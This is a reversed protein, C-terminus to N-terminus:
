VSRRPSSTAVDRPTVRLPPARPPRRDDRPPGGEGPHGPAPSVGRPASLRVQVKVRDVRLFPPDGRTVGPLVLPGFSVRLLPDVRVNGELVVEGLQARVAELIRQRLLGEVAPHSLLALSAMSAASILAAVAAVARARRAWVSGRAIPNAGPM